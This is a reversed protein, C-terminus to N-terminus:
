PKRYPTVMPVQWDDILYFNHAVSDYEVQSATFGSVCQYFSGNCGMGVPPIETYMLFDADSSLPAQTPLYPGYIYFYYYDTSLRLKELSNTFGSLLVTFILAICSAFYKRM